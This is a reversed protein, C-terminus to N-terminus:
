NHIPLISFTPCYRRCAVAVGVLPRIGVLPLGLSPGVVRCARFKQHGFAVVRKCTDRADTQGTRGMGAFAWPVQGKLEEM